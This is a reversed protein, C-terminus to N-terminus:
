VLYPIGELAENSRLLVVKKELIKWSGGSARLLFRCRASHIVTQHRTLIFLAMVCHAAVDGRGLPDDIEVNSIIRNTRSAPDQAHAHGSRLRAVRSTMEHRSDFIISVHEAPNIDGNGAPLWYVADPLFLELWEEFRGEDLLRAERYLFREVADRETTVVATM